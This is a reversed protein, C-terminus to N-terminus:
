GALVADAAVRTLGEYLLHKDTPGGGLDGPDDSVTNGEASQVFVLSLVPREQERIVRFDGDYRERTWANGFSLLDADPRALITRLREIHASEAERTKKGAYRDFASDAPTVDTM